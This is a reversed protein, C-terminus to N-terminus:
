PDHAYTIVSTPRHQFAPPDDRTSSLHFVTSSRRLRHHRTSSLPPPDFVTTAVYGDVPGWANEALQGTINTPGLNLAGGDPLLYLSWTGNETIILGLGSGALAQQVAQEATFQGHVAAARRGQLLAPNVSLTRGSERSLRTLSDGLAAAPLDFAHINDQAVAPQGIVALAMALTLLSPRIMQPAM